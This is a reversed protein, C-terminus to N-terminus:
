SPSKKRASCPPCAAGKRPTLHRTRAGRKKLTKVFFFRLAALQQTVTGPNLKRERFLYAQYERLQEPRLQQPSRHFHRAFEAVVRVYCRITNPSYNRRELEEIMMQRLRTM